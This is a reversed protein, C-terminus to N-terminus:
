YEPTGEMGTDTDIKGSFDAIESAFVPIIQVDTASVSAHTIYAVTFSEAPLLPHLECWAYMRPGNLAQRFSIPYVNRYQDNYQIYLYKGARIAQNALSTLSYIDM